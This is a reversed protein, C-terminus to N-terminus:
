LEDQCCFHSFSPRGAEPIRPLFLSCLQRALGRAPYHQDRRYPKDTGTIVYVMTLAASLRLHISVARPFLFGLRLQVARPGIQSLPGPRRGDVLDAGVAARLSWTV